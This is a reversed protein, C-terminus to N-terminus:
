WHAHIRSSAGSLGYFVLGARQGEVNTATLVFGSTSSASAFGTASMTAACGAGSTGSTCYVVPASCDVDRVQFDDIAAEVISGSGTDAARFRVQVTANPTVFSAVHFEHYYWGGTAEVGTPGVTEVTVWAGGNRVQVVFTDDIVGNQNNSYWRWYSIVPDSLGTLNYNASLLTTTGGDVDATGVSSGASANGTV